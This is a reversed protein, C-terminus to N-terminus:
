FRRALVDARSGFHILRSVDINSYAQQLCDQAESVDGVGLHAETLELLLGTRFYPNDDPALSLIPLAAEPRGIRLLMAAKDSERVRKLIPDGSREALQCSRDMFDLGSEVADEEILLTGIWSLIWCEHRPSRNAALLRRFRELGRGSMPKTGRLSAAHAAFIEATLWYTELHASEPAVELARNALLGMGDFREQDSLYHAHETYTQALLHRGAANHAAFTWVQAELVLLNLEMLGSHMLSYRRARLNHYREELAELIQTGKEEPTWLWLRGTMLAVREEQAAGFLRCLDDLREEVLMAESSEWRRVSRPSVGLRAAAQEVTMRRRQRMARLLDGIAPAYGAREVLDPHSQETETRLLLVARPAGVLALAQKRQEPTVKLARLVAELEPLRPQFVNTEWRNLTVRAIGAEAGVQELTLQCDKRLQRLYNGIQMTRCKM